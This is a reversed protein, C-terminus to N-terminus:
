LGGDVRPRLGGGGAHSLGDLHHVQRREQPRGEAVGEEPSCRRGASKNDRMLRYVHEKLNPADVAIRSFAPLKARLVGADTFCTDRMLRGIADLREEVTGRPVYLMMKNDENANPDALGKPRSPLPYRSLGVVRAKRTDSVAKEDKWFIEGFSMTRTVLGAHGNHLVLYLPPVKNSGDSYDEDDEKPHYSSIVQGYIDVAIFKCRVAVAYAKVDEMSLGGEPLSSPCPRSTKRAYKNNITPFKGFHAFMIANRVCSYDALQSWDINTRMERFPRDIVPDLEDHFVDRWSSSQWNLHVNLYKNCIATAGTRLHFHQTSYDYPEKADHPESGEFTVGAIYSERHSAFHKLITNYKSNTKEAETLFDILDNFWAEQEVTITGLNRLYAPITLFVEGRLEVTWEVKGRRADVIPMKMRKRNTAEPDAWEWVYMTTDVLRKDARKHFRALRRDAKKAARSTKLVKGKSGDVMLRRNAPTKIGRGKYGGSTKLIDDVVKKQVRRGDVHYSLGNNFITRGKQREFRTGKPIGFAGNAQQVSIDHTALFDHLQKTSIVQDSVLGRQVIALPPM